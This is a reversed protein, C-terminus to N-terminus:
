YLFRTRIKVLSEESVGASLLYSEADFGALVAFLAERLTIGRQALTAEIMPGQDPKGLATYLPPLRITSLEYDQAILEPAVGVLSLLLLSILGTRDRGAGCHFLVGVSSDAIATIVAAVRDSKQRLFPRYFLPSGDLRESHIKSWFVKDGVDDLAVEKREIKLPIVYTAPKFQASGGSTDSPQPGPNIEGPNRLDLVTRVGSDYAAQWGRETVFRLDASRFFVGPRTMASGCVFGGLDRTNFFGEWGVERM